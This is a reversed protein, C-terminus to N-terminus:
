PSPSVKKLASRISDHLSDWFKDGYKDKINPPSNQILLNKLFVM